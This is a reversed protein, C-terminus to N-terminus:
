GSKKKSVDAPMRGPPWLQGPKHTQSTEWNHWNGYEWGSGGDISLRRATGWDSTCKGSVLVVTWSRTSRLRDWWDTLIKKERNNELPIRRDVDEANMADDMAWKRWTRSASHTALANLADDAKQFDGPNRLAKQILTHYVKLDSDKGVDKTLLESALRRNERLERIIAEPLKKAEDSSLWKDFVELETRWAAPEISAAKVKASWYDSARKQVTAEAPKANPQPTKKSDAIQQLIVQRSQHIDESLRGLDSRLKGFSEKEEQLQLRQEESKHFDARAQSVEQQLEFTARSNGWALLVWTLSFTALLAVSLSFVRRRQGHIRKLRKWLELATAADTPRDKEDSLLNAILTREPWALNAEKLRLLVSKQAPKESDEAESRGPIVDRGVAIEALTLGAAYLDSRASPNNPRGAWEPPYYFRTEPDSFEGKSM